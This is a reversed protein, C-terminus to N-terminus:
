NKMRPSECKSNDSNNNSSFELFDPANDLDDDDNNCNHNTNNSNTNNNSNANSNNNSNSIAMAYLNTDTLNKVSTQTEEEETKLLLEIDVLYGESNRAMGGAEYAGKVYANGTCDQFQQFAKKANTGDYIKFADAVLCGAEYCRAAFEIKLSDDYDVNMFFDGFECCLHILMEAWQQLLKESGSGKKQLLAIKQVIILRAANIAAGRTQNSYKPTNFTLISKVISHITGDSLIALKKHLNKLLLYITDLKAKNIQKSELTPFIVFNVTTDDISNSHMFKLAEDFSDIVVIGSSKKNVKIDTLVHDSQACIALGFAINQLSSNEILVPVYNFKNL